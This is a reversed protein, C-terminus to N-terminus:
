VFIFKENDIMSIDDSPHYKRIRNILGHYLEDPSQFEKIYEIRREDVKRIKNKSGNIILSDEYTGPNSQTERVEAMRM